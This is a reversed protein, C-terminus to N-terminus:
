TPGYLRRPRRTTQTDPLTSQSTADSETDTTMGGWLLTPTQPQTQLDLLYRQRLALIHHCLIPDTTLQPLLTQLWHDAAQTHWRPITDLTHTWEDWHPLRALNLPLLGDLPHRLRGNRRRGLPLRHPNHLPNSEM